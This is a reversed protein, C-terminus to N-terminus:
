IVFFFFSAANRTIIVVIIVIIYVAMNSRRRNQPNEALKEMNHSVTIFYSDWSRLVEGIGWWYQTSDVPIIAHPRAKNGGFVLLLKDKSVSPAKRSDQQTIEDNTPLQM